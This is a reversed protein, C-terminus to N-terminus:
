YILPEKMIQENSDLGYWKEGDYGVEGKKGKRKEKEKRRERKEKKM